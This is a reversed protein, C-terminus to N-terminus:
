APRSTIDVMWREPGAEVVVWEYRGPYEAELQYRLPVPDHDNVLRLTENVELGKLDEFIKEHRERPELSRVDLVKAESGTLARSDSNM